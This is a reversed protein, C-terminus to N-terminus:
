NRLRAALTKAADQVDQEDSGLEISKLRQVLTKPAKFAGEDLRRHIEELTKLVLADNPHGLLRDLLYPDEPLGWAEVYEKSLTAFTKFDDADNVKKLADRRAKGQGTPDIREAIAEPLLDGSFFKDAASKYRSYQPSKQLKDRSAPSSTSSRGGDRKKDIESWSRKPKDDYGDEDRRAM